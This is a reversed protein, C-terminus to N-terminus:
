VILSSYRRLWTPFRLLRGPAAGGAKRTEQLGEEFREQQEFAALLSAEISGDSIKLKM